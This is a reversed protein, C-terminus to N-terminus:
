GTSSAAASTTPASTTTASTTTASTTSTSTDGSDSISSSKITAGSQTGQVQVTDGPRVSRGSVSLSKSIATTSSLKVQLTKGSAEKVYVTDGDIRSVTGVTLGGAASSRGPTSRPATRSASPTSASGTANAKEERVGAYFGAFGILLALLAASTPTLWRRRARRATM